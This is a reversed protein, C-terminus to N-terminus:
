SDIQFLMITVVAFISINIIDVYRTKRAIAHLTMVITKVIKKLDILYM